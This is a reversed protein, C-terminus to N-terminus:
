NSPSYLTKTVVTTIKQKIKVRGEQSKEQNSTYFDQETDNLKQNGPEKCIVWNLTNSCLIGKTVVVKLFGREGNIWCHEWRPWGLTFQTMSFSCSGTWLRWGTAVFVLLKHTSNNKWGTCPTLNGCSQQQLRLKHPRTATDNPSYNEMVCVVCQCSVSSSFRIWQGTVDHLKCVCVCVCVCLRECTFM